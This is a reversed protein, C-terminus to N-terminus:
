PIRRAPPDHPLRVMESARSRSSTTMRGISLAREPRSPERAGRGLLVRLGDYGHRQPREGIGGIVIFAAFIFAVLGGYWHALSALCLAGGAAFMRGRSPWVADAWVMWIALVTWGASWTESAGNHIHSALIASSMFAVGSM